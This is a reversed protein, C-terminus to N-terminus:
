FNGHGPCNVPGHKPVTLEDPQGSFKHGLAHRRSRWLDGVRVFPGRDNICCEFLNAHTRPEANELTVARKTAMSPFLWAISSPVGDKSRNKSSVSAIQFFMTILRSKGQFLPTEHCARTQVGSSVWCLRAQPSILPLAGSVCMM